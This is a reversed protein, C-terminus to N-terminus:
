KIIDINTCKYIHIHRSYENMKLILNVTITVITVNAFVRLLSQYHLNNNLYENFIFLLKFIYM